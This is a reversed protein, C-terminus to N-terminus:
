WYREIFINADPDDHAGPTFKRQQLLASVADIMEPSGALYIDFGDPDLPMGIIDELEGSQVLEEVSGVAGDWDPEQDPDSVVPIYSFNISAGALEELQDRFVLDEAVAAAHVVVYHLESSEPFTSRLMSLYPAVASGTAVLLLDRNGSSRQLTFAGAARRMMLLRDGQQLQFLRPTLAGSRVLTIVFELEEAGSNSTISYARCIMAEDPLDAAPDASSDPLRPASCNLGLVVYQGPEYAFPGGDPRVRIVMSGPALDNRSTVTANYQSSM